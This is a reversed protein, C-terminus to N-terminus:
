VVEQQIPANLEKPFTQDESDPDRIEEEKHM